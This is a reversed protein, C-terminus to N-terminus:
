RSAASLQAAYKAREKEAARRQARDEAIAALERAVGAKDGARLFVRGANEENTGIAVQVAMGPKYYERGWDRFAPTWGDARLKRELQVLPAQPDAACQTPDEVQDPECGSILAPKPYEFIIENYRREAQTGTPDPSDNEQGVDPLSLWASAQTAAVGFLAPNPTRCVTTTAGDDRCDALGSAKADAINGPVHLGQFSSESPPAVVANATPQRNCAACLLAALIIWQRM